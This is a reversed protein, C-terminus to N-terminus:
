IEQQFFTLLKQVLHSFSKCHLLKEWKELLFNWNLQNYLQLVSLLQGRLSSTLSIISQVVPGLETETSFFLSRTSRLSVKICSNRSFIYECVKEFKVNKCILMFAQLLTSYVVNKNFFLFSSAPIMKQSCLHYQVIYFCSWLPNGHCFPM